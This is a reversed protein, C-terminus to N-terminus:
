DFYLKNPMPHELAIWHEPLFIRQKKRLRYNPNQSPLKTLVFM